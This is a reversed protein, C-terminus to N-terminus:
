VPASLTKALLVVLLPPKPIEVLAECLTLEPSLLAGELTLEVVEPRVFLATLYPGEDDVWLFATATLVGDRGVEVVELLLPLTEAECDLGAWDPCVVLLM